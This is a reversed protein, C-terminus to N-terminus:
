LVLYKMSRITAATSCLPIELGAAANITDRQIRLKLLEPLRELRLREAYELL